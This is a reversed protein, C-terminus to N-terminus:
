MNARYRTCTPCPTDPNTPVPLHPTDNLIRTMATLAAGVIGAPLIPIRLHRPAWRRATDYAHQYHHWGRPARHRRNIDALVQHIPDPM